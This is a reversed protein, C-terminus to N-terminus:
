DREWEYFREAMSDKPERWSPHYPSMYKALKTNVDQFLPHERAQYLRPTSDEDAEVLHFYLGHFTFLTRSRVGILEPLETADSEAFIAAVDAANEPELRAVILTRHM